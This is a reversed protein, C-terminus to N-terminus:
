CGRSRAVGVQDGMRGAIVRQVIGLLPGVAGSEHFLLFRLPCPFSLM